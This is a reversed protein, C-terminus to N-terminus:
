RDDLTTLTLTLAALIQVALRSLDRKKQKEFCNGFVEWKRRDVGEGVVDKELGEVVIPRDARSIPRSGLSPVLECVGRSPPSSENEGGRKSEVELKTARKARWDPVHDVVGWRKREDQIIPRAKELRPCGRILVIQEECQPM